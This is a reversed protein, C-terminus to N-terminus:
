ISFLSKEVERYKKSHNSKNNWEKHSELISNLESVSLAFIQCTLRKAEREVLGNARFQGLTLTVDQKFANLSQAM